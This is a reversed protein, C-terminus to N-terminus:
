ELQKKCFICFAFNCWPKLNTNRFKSSWINGIDNWSYLVFVFSNFVQHLIQGQGYKVVLCLVTCQLKELDLWLCINRLIRPPNCDALYNISEEVPCGASSFNYGQQLFHLSSYPISAYDYLLTSLYSLHFNLSWFIYRTKASM